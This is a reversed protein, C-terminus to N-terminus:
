GAGRSRMSRSGDPMLAVADAGEDDGVGEVPKAEITRVLLASIIKEVQVPELEAWLM